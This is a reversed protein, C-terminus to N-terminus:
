QVKDNNDLREEAMKNTLTPTDQSLRPVEPPLPSVEGEPEKEVGKEEVLSDEVEDEFIGGSIESVDDVGKDIERTSLYCIISIM